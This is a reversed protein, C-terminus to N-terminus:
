KEAEAEGYEARERRRIQERAIEPSALEYGESDLTFNPNYYPDGLELERKWRQQFRLVESSFREKKEPTDDCGRSKSEYHYLEAYPTWVILYGAQRIRMCLDVDNFAVAFSEDLGGLQDWVKRPIMVCAGTVASLNQAHILKGMYGPNERLSNRHLHGALTLLGLGLGAHQVTNDYYYLKAGVAGVDQRQAFMLMQEIWDPTIVETDNNLLVFIEGNAFRAGYNNIASYNFAGSWVVVRIRPDNELTKYYDFTAQETSNNEVVLIEWNPYTSRESVSRICKDLDGIHDKNPIIISVLPQKKIQYEIRYIAPIRTDEAIGSMGVRRLHEALANKAATICYPKASIDSAVSNRHSRWYYLVRPIHVITKAQETLRLVMDYDQSGDFESRFKGAKQLLGAQFVTFHCIYNNTRLTDPAYDPKFHIFTINKRDPSEFTAEDTYIFDAGKKCIVRMVDYLAAPHLVDDHDLLAIYDGSAMDICANTNGSIGLNKELRRYKIRGDAAAFSRCVTEVRGHEADSGDALCLEWRAYTQEQVSGIMERLFSEPTNYLPVLISFTIDRSFRCSRQSALEQKSYLPEAIFAAYGKQKRVTIRVKKWTARLGNQKLSHLGKDFLAFGRNRKLFDLLRRLPKSIKWFFASSINDYQRQLVATQEQQQALCRKLVAIEALLQAKEDREAEPATHNENKNIGNM